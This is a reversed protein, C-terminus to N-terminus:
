RACPASGRRRAATRARCRCCARGSPRELDLGRDAEADRGGSASSAAVARPASTSWISRAGARELGALVGVHDCEVAVRELVRGRELAHDEHHFSPVRVTASAGDKIQDRARQARRAARLLEVAPAVAQLRPRRGPDRDADGLVRRARSSRTRSRPTGRPERSAELDRGRGLRVAVVRHDEAAEAVRAEVAEALDEADRHDARALRRHVDGALEPVAEADHGHEVRDDRRQVPERPDGPEVRPQRRDDGHSM